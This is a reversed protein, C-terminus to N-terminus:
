PHYLRVEENRFNCYAFKVVEARGDGKDRGGCDFFGEKIDATSTSEVAAMDLM